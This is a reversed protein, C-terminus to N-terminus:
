AREKLKGLNEEKLELVKHSSEVRETLVKSKKIKSEIRSKADCMWRGSAHKNHCIKSTNTLVHIFKQKIM